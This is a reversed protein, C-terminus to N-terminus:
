PCQLARLAIGVACIALVLVFAGFVLGVGLVLLLFACLCLLLLAAVRQDVVHGAAEGLREADMQLLPFAPDDFGLFANHAQQRHNLAGLLQKAFGISDGDGAPDFLVGLGGAVQCEREHLVGASSRLDLGAAM